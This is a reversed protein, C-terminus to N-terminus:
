EKKRVQSDYVLLEIIQEATKPTLGSGPKRMMKYVYKRWDEGAFKSNIPRALTHCRSCKQEFIKYYEQMQPPYSSVDIFNPGKDAPFTKVTAQPMNVLSVTIIVMLGIVIVVSVWVVPQRM